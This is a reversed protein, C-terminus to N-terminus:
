RTIRGLPHVGRANPVWGTVQTSVLAWRVPTFLGIMPPGALLALEASALLRGRTAPPAAAAADLLEDAARNCHPGAGCRFRDLLAAPDMVRTATEDVVLDFDGAKVLKARAARDAVRVKVEVGLPRWDAAVREAITRHERGPPMLLTLRLPPLAADPQAEGADGGAKATRGAAALRAAMVLAQAEARRVALADADMSGGGTLVNAASGVVNGVVDVAGGVVGVAGGVAGGVVGGVAGAARRLGAAVGAQREAESELFLEPEPGIEPRLREPLLGAEPQIAAIGFRSILAQRDVVDALARRLGADALPGKLANTRWGYVALLPDIRLVERRGAALRAENLGALGEGVVIDVQGARFAAVATEAAAMTEIRVEAPLAEESEAMERRRLVLATKEAEDEVYRALTPPTRGKGMVGADPEALWDLLLPSPAELKIEVVRATPAGVGLASVPKGAAVMEAGAIGALRFHAAAERVRATRRFGAVVDGAVLDTGDSWKLPKLRLILAGGEDLFRWSSALGGVLEGARDREILTPRLMADAMDRTLSGAAADEGVVAVRLVEGEPGASGCGALVLLMVGTVCFRM